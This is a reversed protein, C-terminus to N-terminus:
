ALSLKADKEIHSIQNKLMKLHVHTAVELTVWQTSVESVVGLFGSQTVVQDGPKISTLLLQQEKMKKKQPLFVLFYVVGFMLVIPILNMLTAQGTSGLASNMLNSGPADAFASAAIFWTSLSCWFVMMGTM